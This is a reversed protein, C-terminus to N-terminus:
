RSWKVDGVSIRLRFLTAAYRVQATALSREAEVTERMVNLVDLWTRQGVLFMRVYSEYIQKQTVRNAGLSNTLARSAELVQLDSRTRIRLDALYADRTSLAKRVEFKAKRIAEMSSLGSGFAFDLALFVRSDADAGSAYERHQAKVSLTPWLSSEAQDIKARAVFVEAALRNLRPDQREVRNLIDQIGLTLQYEWSVQNPLVVDHGAISTGILESLSALANAKALELNTLTDRAQSLRSDVLSADVKASYGQHVRRQMMAGFDVLDAVYQRYASLVMEGTAFAEYQDAIRLAIDHQAEAVSWEAARLKSSAYEADADLRGSSWLPQTLQATAVTDDQGEAEVSVSPAPFYQWRASWLAAASAAVGHKQAQIGPYSAVATDALRELTWLKVGTDHDAALTSSSIFLSHVLGFMLLHAGSWPWKDMKGALM